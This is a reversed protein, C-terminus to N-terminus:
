LCIFRGLLSVTDRKTSVPSKRHANNEGSCYL